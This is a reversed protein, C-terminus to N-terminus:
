VDVPPTDDRASALCPMSLLYLTHDFLIFLFEVWLAFHLSLVGLVAGNWVLGICIGRGGKKGKGIKDKWIRDQRRM